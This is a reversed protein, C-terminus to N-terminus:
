VLTWGGDVLITQGTLYGAGESAMFLVTQAIEEARGMRGLLTHQIAEDIHERPINWDAEWNAEIMGPAVANVRITPALDRALATTFARIAGKASCYAVAVASVLNEQHTGNGYSGSFNVISAVPSRRLYPLAARCAYMTGKVDIKFLEDWADPDIREFRVADAVDIRGFANVLTDIGGFTENALALFEELSEASTVDVRACFSRGGAAHIEDAIDTARKASSRYGVAVNAGELGFALSTAGGLVGAGGLVVISRGSFRPPSGGQKNEGTAESTM